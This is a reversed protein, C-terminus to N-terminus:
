TNIIRKTIKQTQGFYFVNTTENTGNLVAVAVFFTLEGILLTILGLNQVHLDCGFVSSKNGVIL